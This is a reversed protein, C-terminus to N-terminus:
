LLYLKPRFALHVWIGPIGLTSSSSINGPARIAAQLYYYSGLLCVTQPNSYSEKKTCPIMQAMLCM